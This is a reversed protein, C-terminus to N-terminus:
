KILELCYNTTKYKLREQLVKMKKLNEELIEKSEELSHFKLINNGDIEKNEKLDDLDDKIQFSM